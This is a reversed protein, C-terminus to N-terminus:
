GGTPLGPGIEEAGAPELRPRHDLALRLREAIRLRVSPDAVEDGVISVLAGVLAVGQRMTLSVQLAEERRRETDVLRRRLEFAELVESWLSREAAAQGVGRELQRVHELLRARLKDALARRGEHDLEPDACGPLEEVALELQRTTSAVLAWGAASEETPFQELLQAVRSDLLGLEQGLSTLEPDRMARLYRDALRQPLDAGRYRRLTSRPHDLGKPTAGGHLRCRRSGHVPFQTCYRM